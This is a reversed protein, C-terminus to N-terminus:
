TKYVRLAIVVRNWTTLSPIRVEALEAVICRMQYTAGAAWASLQDTPRISGLILERNGQRIVRCLRRIKRTRARTEFINM